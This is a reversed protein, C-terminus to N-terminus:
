YRILTGSSSNYRATKKWYFGKADHKVSWFDYSGTARDGNEDLMTSGSAGFFNGAELIFTSKLQNIDPSPGTKLCTFALVWLADYATIAYAEPIRGTEAQIKGILPEWKERAADDLGYIPCPLGHTCAFRASVSDTLVSSNLAFASSGYWYVNNLNNFAGAASLFQGGEGLTVLYVAVENPNFKKLQVAVLTDLDRLYPTIETLSAPYYVPNVVTGGSKEFNKKVAAVLDNGWLDDRVLPVIVKINDEVMMKNMAEAQIIDTSVFRFINDGPIALSAAVSSPSVVLMGRSDAFNKIASLEASGYPGIILRIGKQYFYKLQKLAEATDTKTDVIEITIMTDSGVSKLYAKLDEMALQLAVVSSEGTSSGGGTLTLLVGIRIGNGTVPQYGSFDSKMCGLTFVLFIFGTLIITKNM